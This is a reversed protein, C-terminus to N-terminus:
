GGSWGRVDWRRRSRRGGGRGRRWCRRPHSGINIQLHSFGIMGLVLGPLPQLVELQGPMRIPRLRLSKPLHKPRPHLIGGDRERPVTESPRFFLARPEAAPPPIDMFCSPLIGLPLDSGLQILFLSADDQKQVVYRDYSDISCRTSSSSCRPPTPSEM